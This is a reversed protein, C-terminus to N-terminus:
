FCLGLQYIVDSQAPTALTVFECTALEKTVTNPPQTVGEMVSYSTNTGDNIVGDRKGQAVPVGTGGTTFVTVAFAGTTNNIVLYDRVTAVPLAITADSVLAGSVVIFRNKAQTATLTTLGGTTVVSVSSSGAASSVALTLNALLTTITGDDIADAGTQNNILQGIVAAMISSQRWVKNVYYEDAIGVQFGGALLAGNAAYTAQSVVTAAGGVAFPKFDNTPM